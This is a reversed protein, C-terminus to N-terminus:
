RIEDIAQKLQPKMVKSFRIMAATLFEIIKPWEENNYYNVGELRFSIRSSKRENLRQWILQDGFAEEIEEKKNYIVDFFQKNEEMDGINIMTEVACYSQTIVFTFPAGSVGSGSSLWHDTTSPSVNQFQSSRDNFVVLLQQWFEKRLQHSQRQTEKTEIAERTKDAMKIIFDEAEKVPIVQEMDLFIKDEFFYPSVKFCQIKIGRDLLWLVTSTVEKRFESAVLIMRQDNQNLPIENFPQGDFFDEILEEANEDIHNKDLYSQYIDKIQEKTLTQCYSAYKLAQWTVDRGSDDLKNEIIVLNGDKDLGLLDLRERTDDFGDFEKQIILLEEDLCESNNAIWEQLHEREGIGLRQFTTKPIKTIGKLDKNVIFM